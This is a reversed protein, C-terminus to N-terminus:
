RGATGGGEAAVPARVVLLFDGAGPRAGANARPLKRFAFRRAELIPFPLSRAAEDFLGSPMLVLARGGGAQDGELYHRLDDANGLRPYTRGSYFLFGGMMGENLRYLAIRDGADAFARLEGAAPRVSVGHNVIGPVAWGLAAVLILATGGAVALGLRRGDGRSAAGWSAAVPWALLAGLLAPILREGPRGAIGIVLVTVAVLILMVFLLWLGVRRGRGPAHPAGEGGALWWAVLIAAPPYIPLLYIGRKTSAISLFALPLGFWLAMDRLGPHRRAAAGLAAVLAFPLLISWPTMDTLLTPLYFWGPNDHGKAASGTFRMINNVVVFERVAAAGLRNHLAAVWLGVPLLALLAGPILGHRVIGKWDRRAGIWGAVALGPIGAGVIGKLLLAAALALYGLALWPWRRRGRITRGAGGSAGAVGGAGPAAIGFYLGVCAATTALTLPMDIMTRRAIYFFEFSTLLVLAALMATAEGVLARALIFTLLVTLIGAVAPVVRGPTEGPGGAIRYASSVLWYFLPPKELFPETNLRPTVLDGSAAMERAIELERPEDPNYTESRGLGSLLTAAAVALVVVAASLRGSRRPPDSPAMPPIPTAERPRSPGRGSLM